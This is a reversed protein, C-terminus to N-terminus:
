LAAGTRLLGGLKPVSLPLNTGSNLPRTGIWIQSAFELAHLIGSLSLFLQVALLFTGIVSISVNMGQGNISEKSSSAVSAKEVLGTNAGM